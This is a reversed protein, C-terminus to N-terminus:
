DAVGGAQTPPSAEADNCDYRVGITVRRNAALASLHYIRGNYVLRHRVAPGGVRLAIANGALAEGVGWILYGHAGAALRGRGPIHGLGAAFDPAFSATLWLTQGDWRYFDRVTFGAVSHRWAVHWSDGLAIPLALLLADDTAVTLCAPQALVM